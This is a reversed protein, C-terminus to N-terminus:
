ISNITTCSLSFSVMSRPNPKSAKHISSGQTLYTLLKQLRIWLAWRSGVVGVVVLVREWENVVICQGACSLEVRERRKKEKNRKEGMACHLIGLPISEKCSGARGNLKGDDGVCCLANQHSELLPLGRKWSMRREQDELLTSSQPKTQSLFSETLAQSSTSSTQNLEQNSALVWTIQM